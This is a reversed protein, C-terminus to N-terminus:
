NCQLARLERTHTPNRSATSRSVMFASGTLPSIKRTELGGQSAGRFAGRGGRFNFGSTVVSSSEQGRYFGDRGADGGGRVWGRGRGRGRGGGALGVGFDCLSLVSYSYSVLVVCRCLREFVLLVMSVRSAFRNRVESQM